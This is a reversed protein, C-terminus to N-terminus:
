PLNESSRGQCPSPFFEGCAVSVIWITGLPQNARDLPIVLGEVIPPQIQQFYTFYREPYSYLQPAQRDLCVGCPSFKGPATGQAYAELKGALAVWRFIEEGNATMELLSVGATGAQCLNRAIAVLNKLM